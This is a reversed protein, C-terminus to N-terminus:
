SSSKYRQLILQGNEFLALGAACISQEASNATEFDIAAFKM